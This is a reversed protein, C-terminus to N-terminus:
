AAIGVGCIEKENNRLVFKGLSNRKLNEELVIPKETVVVGEVLDGTQMCTAGTRKELTLSDIIKIPDRLRALTDQTACQFRLGAKLEFPQACLIKAAFSNRVPPFVPKCIIQGRMVGAMNELVLGVSQPASVLARSSTLTRIKKLKNEKAFPFVCVKEKSGISGSVITGVAVREKHIEYVDQVPFRFDGNTHEVACADLLELFSPGKYWRMKKSPMVVNEGGEASLPVVALPVLSISKFFDNAQKRVKLFGDERFNLLDIKNLAVIIQTVGLFKLILAHRKTQNEISKTADVVVVATDAFSSGTLMNKLLAQHGPVDIFIFTRKKRARCFVQTTDLTLENAREEEFSDLLHALTVAQKEYLSKTIAKLVPDPLSRTEYLVRGILTSKGADVEGTVVIHLYEDM